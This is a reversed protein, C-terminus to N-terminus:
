RTGRLYADEQAGGGYGGQPRASCRPIFKLKLM